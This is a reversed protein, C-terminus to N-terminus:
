YWQNTEPLWAPSVQYRRSILGANAFVAGVLFGQRGHISQLDRAWQWSPSFVFMIISATKLSCAGAAGVAVAAAAYLCILDLELANSLRKASVLTEVEGRDFGASWDGVADTESQFFM